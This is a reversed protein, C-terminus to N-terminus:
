PTADSLLLIKLWEKPSSPYFHSHGILILVIIDLIGIVDAARGFCACSKSAAAAQNAM